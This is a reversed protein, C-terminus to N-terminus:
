YMHGLLEFPGGDSCSQGIGVPRNVDSMQGANVNRCVNINAVESEFSLFYQKDSTGVFVTNGNSEFCFFFPETRLINYITVMVNDLFGEFIKTNGEINIRAGSRGYMVFCSRSKEVLEVALTFEDFFGTFLVVVQFGALKQCVAVNGAGTRMAAVFIGITVLAFGASIRKTGVFQYLGTRGDASAFRNHLRGFVPIQRQVM